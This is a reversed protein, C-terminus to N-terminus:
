SPRRNRPQNVYEQKPVWPEALKLIHAPPTGGAAPLANNEFVEVTVKSCGMAELKALADKLVDIEITAQLLQGSKLQKPWLGTVKFSKNAAMHVELHPIYAELRGM